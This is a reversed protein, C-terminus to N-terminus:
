TERCLPVYHSRPAPCLISTVLSSLYSRVVFMWWSCGDRVDVVFMWWSYGGRVDVM